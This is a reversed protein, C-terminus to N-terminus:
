GNFSNFALASLSESFTLCRALAGTYFNITQETIYLASNKKRGYSSNPLNATIKEGPFLKGQSYFLYSNYTYFM